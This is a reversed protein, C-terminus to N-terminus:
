QTNLRATSVCRPRSCMETPLVSHDLKDCCGSDRPTKIKRAIIDRVDPREVAAIGLIHGHTKTAVTDAQDSIVGHRRAAGRECARYAPGVHDDEALRDHHHRFEPKVSRNQHALDLTAGALTQYVPEKRAIIVKGARFPLIGQETQSAIVRDTAAIAIIGSFAAGPRIHEVAVSAIVPKQALIAIVFEIATGTVVIQQAANPLIFEVALTTM